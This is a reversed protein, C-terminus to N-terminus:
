GQSIDIKEKLIFKHKMLINYKYLICNINLMNIQEEKGWHTLM